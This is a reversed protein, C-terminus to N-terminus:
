GEGWGHSSSRIIGGGGLGRWGVVPPSLRLLPLSALVWRLPPRTPGPQPPAPSRSGRRRCFRGGEEGEEALEEGKRGEEGGKGSRGEEGESEDRPEDEAGRGCSGKGEAEEEAEEDGEEMIPSALRGLTAARRRRLGGVLYDERRRGKRKRKGQGGTRRAVERSAEPKPRSFM